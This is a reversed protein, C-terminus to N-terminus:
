PRRTNLWRAEWVLVGAGRSSTQGETRGLGALVGPLTLQQFITDMQAATYPPEHDAWWSLLGMFVSVTYQVVIELPIPVTDDRPVLAALEEHVVDTLMEQMHRVVAAGSQKGVLARYVRRYSLAHEFMALSFGLRQEGSAAMGAHQKVLVVRLQEFGSLLLQQKDLFHAYFTSRGVNARDIINQITVAEYGKELILAILADQLLKRTRQVRRDPAKTAMPRGRPESCNAGPQEIKFLCGIIPQQGRRSRITYCFVFLTDM